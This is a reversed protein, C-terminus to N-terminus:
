CQTQLNMELKHVESSNKMAILLFIFYFEAQIWKVVNRQIFQFFLWSWKNKKILEQFVHFCIGQKLVQCVGAYKINENWWAALEVNESCM